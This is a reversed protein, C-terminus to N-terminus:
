ALAVIQLRYRECHAAARKSAHICAHTATWCYYMVEVFCSLVLSTVLRLGGVLHSSKGNLRNRDRTHRSLVSLSM